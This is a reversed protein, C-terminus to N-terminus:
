FSRTEGPIMVILRSDHLFAARVDVEKALPPLTGFHMPVIVEPKFYKKIGLAATKPDSGWYGGGVNQLIVVPHYLEEILAMDGFIWTDGTHYVSRGDSFTLVFGVPRGSPESSHMAPVVHITVDGIPITGGINCGLQQKEPLGLKEVWDGSSVVPAGSEQAIEIADQSHDFHSHSVLIAAPHYRSLDKFIAPTQPNQKLWPDILIRTGGPSIIEFAAHGLWTVQFPKKDTQRQAYAGTCFVSVLLLTLIAWFQTERTM